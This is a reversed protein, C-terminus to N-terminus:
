YRFWYEKLHKARYKTDFSNSFLIIQEGKAVQFTAIAVHVQVSCPDYHPKLFLSMQLVM